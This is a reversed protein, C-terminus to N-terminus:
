TGLSVLGLSRHGRAYSPSDMDAAATPAAVPAGGSGRGAFITMRFPLAQPGNGAPHGRGPGRTLTFGHERLYGIVDEASASILSM